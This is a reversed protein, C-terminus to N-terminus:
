CFSFHLRLQQDHLLRCRSLNCDYLRCRSLNCNHLCCLLLNCDCLHCLLLGYGFLCFLM